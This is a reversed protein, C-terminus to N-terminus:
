EPGPKRSSLLAGSIYGVSDRGLRVTWWGWKDVAGQVPTAPGLVRLIPADNSPEGRVNVWTTTWRTQLM